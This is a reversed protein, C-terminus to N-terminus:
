FIQSQDQPVAIKILGFSVWNSVPLVSVGLPNLPKHLRVLYETTTIWHHPEPENQYTNRINPAKKNICKASTEM